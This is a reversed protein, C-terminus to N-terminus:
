EITKPALWRMNTSSAKQVFTMGGRRVRRLVQQERERPRQVLVAGRRVPELLAQGAQRV